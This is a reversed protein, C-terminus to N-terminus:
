FAVSGQAFALALCAIGNFLAHTVMPAVVSQMRYALYGLGLGLFFLPVPSPWVSAHVMAFLLASGYIGHAAHPYPLWRWTLREAFVYAPLTALVFLVPSLRYLTSWRSDGEGPGTADSREVWVLVAIVLALVVAVHGGWSRQILWGQLIGRFVLEELVPATVVATLVTLIWDVSTPQHEMLLQLPHPEPHYGLQIFVYLANVPLALVLWGLFGVVVDQRWHHGSLGLQYLGTIDGQLWLLLITVLQYPFAFAEAWLSERVLALKRDTDAATSETSSKKVTGPGQEDSALSSEPGYYWSFFGSKTLLLSVAILPFLYGLFVAAAVQLGGWPVARHRQPPLLRRGDKRLIIWLGAAAISGVVAVCLWALLEPYVENKFFDAV